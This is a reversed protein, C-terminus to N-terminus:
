RGLRLHYHSLSFGLSQWFALGRRNTPLVDLEVDEAGRERALAILRAALRRGVGRRRFAPFVYFEAIYGIRREPLLWDTQLRVMGFGCRQGDLAAWFTFRELGQEADIRQLYRAAWEPNPQVGLEGWYRWMTRRFEADGPQLSELSLEGPHPGAM